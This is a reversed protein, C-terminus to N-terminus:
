PWTNPKIREMWIFGAIVLLISLLTYSFPITFATDFFPNKHGAPQHQQAYFYLVQSGNYVFHALVSPWLSGSFIYLYGLVLGLLVRPFFGLFELHMTSFLIAGLWVSLHKRRTARVLLQQVVGRFFAEECVAPLLGMVLLNVLLMPVTPMNLVDLELEDIQKETQRIWADAGALQHPLHLGENWNALAQVLPIAALMILAAILYYWGNSSPGFGAGRLPDPYILNAFILAPLLMTGIAGVVEQGRIGPVTAVFLISLAYTFAFVTVLLFCQFWLPKERFLPHIPM